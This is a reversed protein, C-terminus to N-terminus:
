IRMMLLKLMVQAIFMFTLNKGAVPVMEWLQASAASAIRLDKTPCSKNVLTIIGDCKYTTNSPIYTTLTALDNGNSSKGRITLKWGKWTVSQTASRLTPGARFKTGSVCTANNFALFDASLFM